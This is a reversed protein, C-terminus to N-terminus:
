RDQLTFPNFYDVEGNANSEQEQGRRGAARCKGASPVDAHGAPSLGAGLLIQVKWPSLGDM